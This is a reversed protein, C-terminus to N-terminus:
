RRALTRGGVLGTSLATGLVIVAGCVLMWPTLTEGLLVVGYGVAFVPVGFTVALAKAPGARAILRFYIVFALGTCLVGLALMSLWAKASVAHQPWYYWTAPALAITSGLMSGGTLVVAPVGALYRRTYSAAWGYFFCAGLCALVAWGTSVGSANPVFSAKNWALMAVGAFGILLGLIRSNAPRDKLWAWAIAAGFLPVTANLISSLGTSVSQLAYTLLCFPIASNLLGMVFVQKWHQRLAQAHGQVLVVPMLVLTAIGVRLGATPLAGFEVAGLHM